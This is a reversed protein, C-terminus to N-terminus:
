FEGEKIREELTQRKVIDQYFPSTKLLEKHTGIGVIRGEDLLIIKDLDKVTSIRHAILITTKNKRLKHLNSIITEETKTDVASVSDDLILIDPDKAIARAISIRQKQGGSVTVGREGLITNFGEKFEVVNDYIDALKASDIVEDDSMTNRAFAINNHITDSFLFNDQPVYGVLDRVSKLPLNMIDYGGLFIKNEEVNYVRLLLDVLTTKGSGTKGLIGVMEGSKIEFSIDNLVNENGDPYMFNLNEVKISPEIKEPKIVTDKDYITTKTDLFDKIRNGSAQAQSFLSLFRALAMTPWTLTGFLSIFETLGGVTFRQEKVLDITKVVSIAGFGVIVVTVLNIAITTIIQVWLSRKFFKMNTDFLDKSLKKFTMIEYAERVYAKIVALGSFDEQTFDSLDRFKEQRIKFQNRMSRNIIIMGIVLGVIPISILLTLESNLKVMRIIAFAGLFISDVLMMVGPGLAMRVAGLDNIFYTMLGGVKQHSYYEQGLTTAHYFMETRLRYEIKRSAGFITLRWLVRGVAVILVVLALSKVSEIIITKYNTIVEPAIGGPNSESLKNYESLTDIVKGIIRPVELQVYDILILTTIGIILFFSYRIIYKTIYKNFLKKM